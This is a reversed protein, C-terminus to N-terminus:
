HISPPALHAEEEHTTSPPYISEVRLLKLKLGQDAAYEILRIALDTEYLEPAILPRDAYGIEGQWAQVISLSIVGVIRSREGQRTCARAVYLRSRRALEALGALAPPRDLGNALFLTQIDEWDEDTMARASSEEIEIM